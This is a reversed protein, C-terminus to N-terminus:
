NALEELWLRETSRATRRARHLDLRVDDWPLHRVPVGAIDHPLQTRAWDASSDSLSVLLRNQVAEVRNVYTTLQVEGPM